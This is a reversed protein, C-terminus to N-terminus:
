MSIAHFVPSDLRINYLCAMGSCAGLANSSRPSPGIPPMQHASAHDPLLNRVEELLRAQCPREMSTTQMKM